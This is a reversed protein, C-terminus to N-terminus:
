IQVSGAASALTLPCTSLEFAAPTKDHIEGLVPETVPTVAPSLVIVIPPVAVAGVTFTAVPPIVPVWIAAPATSKDLPVTVFLKGSDM